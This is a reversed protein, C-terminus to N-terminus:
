QVWMIFLTIIIKKCNTEIFIVYSTNTLIREEVSLDLTEIRKEIIKKSLCFPHFFKYLM